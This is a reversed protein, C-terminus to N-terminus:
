SFRTRNAYNAYKISQKVGELDFPVMKVISSLNDSISGEWRKVPLPNFWTIAAVKRKATELFFWWYQLTASNAPSNYIGAQSFILIWTDDGVNSLIKELSLSSTHNENSFLKFSEIGSSHKITGPYRHFYYRDIKSINPSQALEQFLFDGWGEFPSMPGGHDTLVIVKQKSFRKKQYIFEGIFQNKGFHNALAEIDLDNSKQYNCNMKLKRLAHGLQRSAIPFHKENSFLFGTDKASPKDDINNNLSTSQGIGEEFSLIVEVFNTKPSDSQTSNNELAPLPASPQDKVSSGNENLSTNNNGNNNELKPHHEKENSFFSNGVPLWKMELDEIAEEFWVKFVGSYESKTLWLTKCLLYLEDKNKAYGAVFLDLFILYQSFDLEIGTSKRLRDFFPRMVFDLSSFNM